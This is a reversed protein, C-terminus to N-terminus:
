STLRSFDDETLLKHALPFLVNDERYIHLRLMEILERGTNYAVDNTFTRSREDQLRTALGLFNFALAGLQIFKVHDDEMLDVATKAHLGGGHEGSEMLRHHLMPFLSKEERRNHDMIKDDFFEFFERFVENVEESLKYEDEKFQVLAAEFKDCHGTAVTHEDMFKQLRPDMDEYKVDGVSPPEYADPPDMPSHETDELGKEVNRRIPDTKNLKKNLGKTEDVLRKGTEPDIIRM